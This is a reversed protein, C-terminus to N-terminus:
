RNKYSWFQEQLNSKHCYEDGFSAKSDIWNVVFGNVSIPFVLKVDPTKPYGKARLEDETQFPIGTSRLKEYLIYEYELGTM